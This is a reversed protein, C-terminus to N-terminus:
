FFFLSVSPYMDDPVTSCILKVDASAEAIVSMKCRIHNRPPAVFKQYLTDPVWFAMQIRGLSHMAMKNVICTAFQALLQEGRSGKPLTGTFFVDPHVSLCIYTM